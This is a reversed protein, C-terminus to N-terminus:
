ARRQKRAKRPAVPEAESAVSGNRAIEEPIDQALKQGLGTRPVLLTSGGVIRHRPPIGNLARLDAPDLKFSRALPEVRTTREVRYATWQSLPGRHQNQAVRFRGAAEPPLALQPLVSRPIVPKNAAPNLAHLTELSVGALRAATPADVDRALAVTTWAPRNPIDPLRLGFAEPNEILRKFALLAPVYLRTEQPLPLASYNSAKGELANKAMAKGVAGEGANYAALALFHDGFRRHNEELYDYMAKACRAADRRLDVWASQALGFRRGTAPMFQCVGVAGARGVPRAPATGLPPTGGTATAQEVAAPMEAPDPSAVPLNQCAALSLSLLLPVITSRFARAPGPTGSSLRPM